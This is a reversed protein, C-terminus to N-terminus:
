SLNLDAPSLDFARAFGGNLHGGEIDFVVFNFDAFDVYLAAKPHRSLWDARMAPRVPDDKPVFRTRASLSLRPFALPDGKDPIDGILLGARPDARLARTHISLDSVLTVLLGQVLGIAIRTVYPAGSTPHLIALSATGARLLIDRATARAQDDPPLFPDPM